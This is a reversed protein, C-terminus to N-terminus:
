ADSLCSFEVDRDCGAHRVIRDDAQGYRSGSRKEGGHRRDPGAQRRADCLDHRDGHRARQWVAAPATRQYQGGRHRRHHSARFVASRAPDDAPAGGFYPEARLVFHRRRRQHYSRATRIGSSTKLGATSITVDSPAIPGGMRGKTCHGCCRSGAPRRSGAEALCQALEEPSGPVITM